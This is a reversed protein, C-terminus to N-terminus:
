ATQPESLQAIQEQTALFPCFPYFYLYVSNAWKTEGNYLRPTESPEVRGWGHSGPEVKDFRVVETGFDDAKIVEDVWPKQGYPLTFFLFGNPALWSKMRALAVYFQDAGLLHDLTSVSFVLDYNPNRPQYTLVDANIVGPFEEYLDIVEHKHMMYHPLVAGVELAKPLEELMKVAVPVEVARENIRPTNYVHVKYNFYWNGINFM